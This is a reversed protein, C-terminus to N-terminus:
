TMSICSIKQGREFLREAATVSTSADRAGTGVAQRSAQETRAGVAIPGLASREPVFLYPMEGDTSTRPM